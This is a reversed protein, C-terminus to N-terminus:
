LLLYRLSNREAPRAVFFLHQQLADLDMWADVPESYGVVHLNSSDFDVVRNGHEDEIYAGRINWEDPVTWDFARTGSPVQHVNLDPLLDCLYGLTQRVGDGTLSRCIPFLDTAWQFMPSELDPGARTTASNPKM